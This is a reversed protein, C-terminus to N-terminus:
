RRRAAHRLRHALSIMPPSVVFEYLFGDEPAWKLKYPFSAGLDFRAVGARASYEISEDIIRVGTPLGGVSEDRYLVGAVTTAGLRFNTAGALPIDGDRLVLTEYRGLPTLQRAIELNAELAFRDRHSGRADWKSLNNRVVWEADGPRDIAVTLHACKERARRITSWYRTSRWYAEREAIALVNVARPAARQVGAGTPATRTNWWVMAVESNLKRLAPVVQEESVAGPVGPLLWDLMSRWRLRGERRLGFVAVPEGAQEVLAIRGGSHVNLHLLDVFLERTCLADAPLAHVANEIDATVSRFWVSRLKRQSRELTATM